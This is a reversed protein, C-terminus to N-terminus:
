KAVNGATNLVDWTRAFPPAYCLDLMGLEETTMKSYIASALVDVRLVAGNKGIIQGGLIVKTEAHYILKVHIDSQGPYYNTQNKDLITVTKYPIGMQKAERESIGTRGAELDMVKVCASGLTGRFESKQGALNEGVIRGIKNATTALPIYVPRGKILHHVSACDGAAYIDPLSTEGHANIILAGNDLMEVGTEKLFETNPRVGTAVVVLDAQYSGYDTEVGEVMHEGVFGKVSENLHLQVGHAVLEAEMRKTIEEDFSDPLVRADLQILRVDKGLAKMAEVVEVGIYGAGIVVIQKHEEKLAAAKLARGDAMSKLTFINNLERNCFPPIVARAGTAIMMKDYYDGFEEGTAMNRVQLTKQDPDVAVVQHKTFVPIGTQEFQEKTRAIMRNPDEFFDGVFYPLGCAGFSVEETMEYVVIDAERDMRRAKAAASMGAAVGGIIIIRM